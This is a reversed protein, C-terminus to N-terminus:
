NRALREVASKYNLGELYQVLDIVDGGVGGQRCVFIQKKTNIAFRDRGGCRPCPGIFEVGVRRLKAGRRRAEQLIDPKRVAVM